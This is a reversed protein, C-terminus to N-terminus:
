GTTPRGDIIADLIRLNVQAEHIAVSTEEVTMGDVRSAVEELFTDSNRIANLLPLIREAGRVDVPWGFSRIVEMGEIYKCYRLRAAIFYRAAAPDVELSNLSSAIHRKLNLIEKRYRRTSPLAFM